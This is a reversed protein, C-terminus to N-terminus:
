VFVTQKHLKQMRPPFKWKVSFFIYVKAGQKHRFQDVFVVTPQVQERV